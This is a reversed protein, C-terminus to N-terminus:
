VAAVRSEHIYLYTNALHLRQVFEFAVLLRDVHLHQPGGLPLKSTSTLTSAIALRSERAHQQNRTKTKPQHCVTVM